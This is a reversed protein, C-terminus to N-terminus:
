EWHGSSTPDLYGLPLSVGSSKGYLSSSCSGRLFRFSFSTFADGLELVKSRLHLGSWVRFELYFMYIKLACQQVSFTQHRGVVLGGRSQDLAGGRVSVGRQRVLKEERIPALQSISQPLSCQKNQGPSRSPSLLLRRRGHLAIGEVRPIRRYDKM